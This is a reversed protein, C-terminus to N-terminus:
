RVRVNPGTIMVERVEVVDLLTLFAEQPLFQVM